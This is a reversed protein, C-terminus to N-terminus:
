MGRYYTAKGTGEKKVRGHETLKRLIGVLKDPKLGTLKELDARAYKHGLLAMFVKEEDPSLDDMESRSGVADAVNEVELEDRGDEPLTSPTPILSGELWRWVGNVPLHYTASKQEVLPAAKCKEVTMRSVPGGANCAAEVEPSLDGMEVLQERGELRFVNQSLSTLESPGKYTTGDKSSHHIVIVAIGAQEAKHIFSFLKNVSGNVASPALSFINDIVLVSAKAEILKLIIEKACVDDLINIDSSPPIVLLNKGILEQAEARGKLLQRCRKKFDEGGVEGDMYCVTRRSVAFLGFAGTGTVLALTIEIAVWGKGANSVGYIFTTYRPKILDDWTPINPQDLEDPLDNISLFLKHENLERVDDTSNTILGISKLWNPYDSIPISNACVDRAFKSPREVDVLCVAQKWLNREWSTDITSMLSFCTGVTIPWPYVSVSTAGNKECRKAWDVVGRLGEATPEPIIVVPHGALDKFDLAALADAGGFCGSVLIDQRELLRCERAIARFDQAVRMDLCILVTADGHQAMMARSHLRAPVASAGIKLAFTGNIEVRGAILSFDDLPNAISVYHCVAQEPIERYDKIYDVSQLLYDNRNVTLRKPIYEKVSSYFGPVVSLCESGVPYTRFCFEPNIGLMHGVVLAAELPSITLMASALSRVSDFKKGNWSIRGDRDRWVVDYGGGLKVFLQSSEYESLESFEYEVVEIYISAKKPSRLDSPLNHSDYKRLLQKVESSIKLQASPIKWSNTAHGNPKDPTYAQGFNFLTDSHVSHSISQPLSLTSNIPTVDIVSDELVQDTGVIM